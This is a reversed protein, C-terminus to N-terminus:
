SSKRSLRCNHETAHVKGCALAAVEFVKEFSFSPASYPKKATTKPEQTQEGSSNDKNLYEAEQM